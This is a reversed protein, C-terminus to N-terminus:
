DNWFILKETQIYTDWILESSWKLLVWSVLCEEILLRRSSPNVLSNDYAVDLEFGVFTFPYVKLVYLSSWCIWVRGCASCWPTSFSFSSWHFTCVCLSCASVPLVLVSFLLIRSLVCLNKSNIFLPLYPSSRCSYRARTLVFVFCLFTHLTIQTRDIRLKTSICNFWGIAPFLVHKSLHLKRRLPNTNTIASSQAKPIKSHM